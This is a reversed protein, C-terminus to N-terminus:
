KLAAVNYHPFGHAAIIEGYYIRHYDRKPYNLEIHPTLFHKPNLDDYYMKRCELILEAEAFGPAAIKTSAIPTLGSEEIKDGDRGSKSGLLQLAAKYDEAFSALTFTPYREMLSYTHRTPRVVVQVFPTGWMTGISGWGVTMTNFHGNAFHGTTLLLWQKAWIHHARLLLDDVPIPLRIM